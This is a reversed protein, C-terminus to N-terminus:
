GWMLASNALVPVHSRPTVRPNRLPVVRSPAEANAFRSVRFERPSTGTWRKFAHRFNAAESYGILEAITETTYQTSTLYRVALEKRVDELIQNYSTDLAVLRRRLTRQSVCLRNALEPLTPPRGTARLMIDKIRRELDYQAALSAMLGDCVRTCAERTSAHRRPLPRALLSADLVLEIRSSSSGVPCEFLVALEQCQEPDAGGCQASQVGFDTGCVDRLLVFLKALEFAACARRTADDMEFKDVLEIRARGAAVSTVLSFKLNLLPSYSEAIGILEQLTASCLLAYGAIGYATLRLRRAVQLSIGSDGAMRSALEQIRCQQRLSIRAAPDDLMARDIRARELMGGVDVGRQSAVEAFVAVESTPVIPDDLALQLNRNWEIM